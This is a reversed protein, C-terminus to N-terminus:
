YRTLFPVYTLELFFMPSFMSYITFDALTVYSTAISVGLWSGCIYDSREKLLFYFITLNKKRYLPGCNQVKEARDTQGDTQRDAETHTSTQERGTPWLKQGLTCITPM